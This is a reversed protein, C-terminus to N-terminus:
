GGPRILRDAVVARSVEGIEGDPQRVAGDAATITLVLPYINRSLDPLGTATDDDAADYLAEIATRIAASMDASPDHRKKLASRAFLSGSGVAHYGVEDSKSGVVDFSVIRGARAPDTADTDFGVFLPIAALGQMAAPLNGRVMGALKNVKGDLSLPVGEIKEYHELDVTFLRVLEVAIGATGAIGVSSYNDTIFVKEIDRQAIMNGATARRDGAILVGDAFTLAVITTGHRVEQGLGAGDGVVGGPPLRGPLLHPATTAVFDAFSSVGPTFYEAPLATSVPNLPGRASRPDM